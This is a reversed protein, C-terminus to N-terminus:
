EDIHMKDVLNQSVCLVTNSTRDMPAHDWSLHKEDNRDFMWNTLAITSEQPSKDWDQSHKMVLQPRLTTAGKGSMRLIFLNQVCNRREDHYIVEQTKSDCMMKPDTIVDIEFEVKQKKAGKKKKPQHKQSTRNYCRNLECLLNELLALTILAGWIEVVQEHVEKLFENCEEATMKKKMGAQIFKSPGLSDSRLEIYTACYLPILGLLASMQIFQMTGFDGAGKFIKTKNQIPDKATSIYDILEMMVRECHARDLSTQAGWDGFRKFLEIFRGRHDSWVTQNSGSSFDCRPQTCSGFCYDPIVKKSVKRIFEYFTGNYKKYKALYYAKNGMICRHIEALASTGNSRFSFFCILDLTMGINMPSFNIDFDIFVLIVM